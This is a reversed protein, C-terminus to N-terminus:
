AVERGFSIRSARMAACRVCRTGGTPANCDVCQRDKTWSHERAVRQHYRRKSAKRGEVACAESCYSRGAAKYPQGCTRCTPLGHIRAVHPQGVANGNVSVCVEGDGVGCLPCTDVSVHNTVRRGDKYLQGAWTGYVGCGHPGRLAANTEARCWDIAPCGQCITAAEIHDALDVSLFLDANGACANM